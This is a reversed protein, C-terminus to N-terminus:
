KVGLEAGTAGRNARAHVEECEPAVLVSWPSRLEFEDRLVARSKDGGCLLGLEPQAFTRRKENVAVVAGTGNGMDERFKSSRVDIYSCQLRDAAFASAVTCDHEERWDSNAFGRTGQSGRLV